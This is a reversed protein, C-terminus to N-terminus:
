ACSESHPNEIAESRESWIASSQLGITTRFTSFQLLELILHRFMNGAKAQQCPIAEEMPSATMNNVPAKSIM